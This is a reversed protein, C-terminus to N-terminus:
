AIIMGIAAISIGIAILALMSVLLAIIHFTSFTRNFITFKRGGSAEDETSEGQNDAALLPARPDDTNNPQRSMTLTAAHVAFKRDQLRM